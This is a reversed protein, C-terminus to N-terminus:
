RGYSRAGSPYIEDFQDDTVDIDPHKDADMVSVVHWGHQVLRALPGTHRGWQKKVCFVTHHEGPEMNKDVFKM